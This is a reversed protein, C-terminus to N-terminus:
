ELRPMRPMVRRVGLAFGGCFLLGVFSMMMGMRFSAPAYTMEVAHRGAPVAVARFLYDARLIEARAGDVSASWGPYYADGLFLFGDAPADIGIKLRDPGDELFTCANLSAAPASDSHPAPRAAANVGSLFIRSVPDFATDSMERLAQDEPLIVADRIWFARPLADDFVESQNRERDIAYRVGTLRVAPPYGSRVPPISTIYDDKDQREGWMALWFRVYHSLVLPNYGRVGHERNLLTSNAFIYPGSASVRYPGGGHDAVFKQVARAEERVHVYTKAPRILFHGGWLLEAASVFCMLVAAAGAGLRETSRLILVFAAIGFGLVFTAIARAIESTAHLRFAEPFREPTALLLSFVFVCVILLVAMGLIRPIPISVSRYVRDVLGAALISLAVVSLYLIQVPVRFNKFVPIAHVLPFLPNYKGLALFLSIGLVIVCYRELRSATKWRFGFLAAAAVPGAYCGSEWFYSASVTGWYTQDTPSGFLRPFFLNFVDFWRMSDGTAAAYAMGDARTSWATLELSPILQISSLLFGTGAAAGFVAMRRFFSVAPDASPHIIALGLWFLLAYFAIQPFGGLLLLATLIPVSALVRFSKQRIQVQHFPDSTVVPVTTWEEVTPRKLTREYAWWIWPAWAVTQFVTLHGAYIHRLAFGNFAYIAGALFAAPRSFGTEAAFLFMGLASLFLHLAVTAGFATEPEWMYFLFGGPYFASVQLDALFPTGCLTYPNWFPLAGTELLTDRLFKKMPYFFMM